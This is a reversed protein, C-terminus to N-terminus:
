KGSQGETPKARGLDHEQLRAVMGIEEALSTAGAEATPAISGAVTGIVCGPMHVEHCHIGSVREIGFGMVMVLLTIAVVAWGALVDHPRRCLHHAREDEYDNPLHEFEAM